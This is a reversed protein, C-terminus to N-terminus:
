MEFSGLCKQDVKRLTLTEAGCLVISWIRCELQKKRLNLGLISTFLTKKKNFLKQWPLGPNLKRQVNQMM